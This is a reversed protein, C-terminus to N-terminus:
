PCCVVTDSADLLDTRDVIVAGTRRDKVVLHVEWGCASEACALVTCQFAYLKKGIYLVGSYDMCGPVVSCTALQSGAPSSTHCYLGTKYDSFSFYFTRTTGNQTDMLLYGTKDTPTTSTGAVYGHYFYQAQARSHSAAAVALCAIAITFSRKLM